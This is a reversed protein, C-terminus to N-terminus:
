NDIAYTYIEANQFRPTDEPPIGSLISSLRKMLGNSSVVLVKADSPHLKQLDQLFSVARGHFDQIPEVGFAGSNLNMDLFDIEHDFLKRPSGGQFEGANREKLREDFILPFDPPLIIQATQTTRQLPSVYAADFVLGRAAIKARLAEAQQLGTVNLPIDAQGMLLGQANWDTEGHRVLYLKM